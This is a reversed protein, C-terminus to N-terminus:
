APISLAPIDCAPCVSAHDLRAVQQASTRFHFGCNTCAVKLMRTTQPAKGSESLVMKHHPFDGLLEAVQALYEALEPGAYTATFPGELGISRAIRAFFNRHGSACDDVAHILEHIVCDLVKIPSDIEPSVFIESVSDGSVRRVFCQAVAKSSRSGKPWGVSIRFAPRDYAYGSAVVAPMIKEDLLLGAAETLYTERQAFM